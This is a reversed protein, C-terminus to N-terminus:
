PYSPFLHQADSIAQNLSFVNEIGEMERGVISRMPSRLDDDADVCVTACLISLCEPLYWVGYVMYWGVVVDLSNPNM